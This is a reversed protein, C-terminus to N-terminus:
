NTLRWFAKEKLEDTGKSMLPRNTTIKWQDKVPVNAPTLGRPHWLLGRFSPLNQSSRPQPGLRLCSPRTPSSIRITNLPLILSNVFCLFNRASNKAVFIISYVKFLKSIIFSSSNLRSTCNVKSPYFLNWKKPRRWTFVSHWSHSSSESIAVFAGLPSGVPLEALFITTEVFKLM